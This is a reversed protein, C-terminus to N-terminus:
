ERSLKEGKVADSLFEAPPWPGSTRRELGEPVEVREVTSRFLAEQGRELL